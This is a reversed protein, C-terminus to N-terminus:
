SRDRVPDSGDWDRALERVKDYTDLIHPGRQYCELVGGGPQVFFAFRVFPTRGEIIQEAGLDRLRASEADLDEAFFAVHNLGVGSSAFGEAVGAPELVHHEVLEVQVDGWQGIAISHDLLAPQADPAGEYPHFAAEIGVNDIVLFPGAGTLESFQRAAERINEVKYAIQVAGTRSLQSM